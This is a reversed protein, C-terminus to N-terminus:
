LSAVKGGHRIKLIPGLYFNRSNCVDIKPITVYIIHGPIEMAIVMVAAFRQRSLITHAHTIKNTFYRLYAFPLIFYRILIDLIQYKSRQM